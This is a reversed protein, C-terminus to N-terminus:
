KKLNKLIDDLGKGESSDISRELEKEQDTNIQELFNYVVRQDVHIYLSFIYDLVRLMCRLFFCSEKKSM